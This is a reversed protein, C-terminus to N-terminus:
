EGITWLATHASIHNLRCQYRIQQRLSAKIDNLTVVQKAGGNESLEDLVGVLTDTAGVLLPEPVVRILRTYGHTKGYGYPPMHTTPIIEFTTNTVKSGDAKKSHAVVFEILRLLSTTMSGPPAIIGIRETSEPMYTKCAKGKQAPLCSKLTNTFMEEHQLRGYRRHKSPSFSDSAFTVAGGSSVAAAAANQRVELPETGVKHSMVYPHDHLDRAVHAENHEEVLQFVHQFSLVLSLAVAALILGACRLFTRRRRGSLKSKSM